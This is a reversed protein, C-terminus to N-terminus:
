QGLWDEGLCPALDSQISRLTGPAVTRHRPVTTACTGIRWREHSGTTRVLEVRSPAALPRSRRLADCEGLCDIAGLCSGTTASRDPRVARRSRHLVGFRQEVDFTTEAIAVVSSEVLPPQVFGVPWRHCSDDSRGTPGTSFHACGILLMLSSM